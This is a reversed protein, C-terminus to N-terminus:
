NPVTQLLSLRSSTWFQATTASSCISKPLNNWLKLVLSFHGINEFARYKGFIDHYKGDRISVAQTTHLAPDTFHHLM